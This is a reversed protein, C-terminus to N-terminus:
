KQELRTYGYVDDSIEDISWRHNKADKKAKAVAEEASTAMVTQRQWVDATTTLEVVYPREGGGAAGRDRTRPM